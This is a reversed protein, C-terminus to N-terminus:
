SRVLRGAAVPPSGAIVCAISVLAVAAVFSLAMLTMLEPATVFAPKNALLNEFIRSAGGHALQSIKLTSVEGRSDHQIVGAYYPLLRFTTGFQELANFLIALVPIVFLGRCDPLLRFLGVLLVITEAAVFCLLYYGM